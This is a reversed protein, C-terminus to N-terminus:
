EIPTDTLAIRERDVPHEHGDFAQTADSNPTNATDSTPSRQARKGARQSSASAM